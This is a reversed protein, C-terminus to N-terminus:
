VFRRTWDVVVSGGGIAGGGVASPGLCEAYLQNITGARIRFWDRQYPGERVPRIPVGRVLFRQAGCDLVASEGALLKTPLTISTYQTSGVGDVLPASFNKLRSGRDGGWPGTLTIVPGTDDLTPLTAGAVGTADILITTPTTPLAHTYFGGWLGDDVGWVGDNNGWLDTAESYRTTWWPRIRWTVTFDCFSSGGRNASVLTCQIRPNSGVTFRRTESDTLYVLRQPYGPAVQAALLDYARDLDDDPVPVRFSFSQDRRDMPGANRGNGDLVSDLGPIAAILERRGFDRGMQMNIPRFKYSVYPNVTDDPDRSIDWLESLYGL